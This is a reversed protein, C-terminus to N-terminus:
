NGHHRLCIYVNEANSATPLFFERTVPFKRECLGTVRLKSTKKSRRRFLRNVLGDVVRHNSLHNQGYGLPIGESSCPYDYWESAEWSIRFSIPIYIAHVWSNVIHSCWFLCLLVMHMNWRIVHLECKAVNDAHSMKSPLWRPCRTLYSITKNSSQPIINTYTKAHVQCYIVFRWSVHSLIRHKIEYKLWRSICTYYLCPQLLLCPGNLLIAQM